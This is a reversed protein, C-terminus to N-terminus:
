TNERRIVRVESASKLEYYIGRWEIRRVFGAALFNFLMVWPVLPALQWYRSAYRALSDAEEPFVERGVTSRIRGKDIGLLLIAALLGGTLMREGAGLSPLILWALGSLLTASYFVYTALGMRWLHPMYVRTIIIQRNAWHLFNRLGSEERCALLCRPEFHIRGRAERVARTMAYDDSVTGAWYREALELRRFDGARIAMSGGWAFNRNHDGLLTAISTDWAARLQSAFAKGPLYWRFGTSVTIGLDGLPAVLSRLWDQAPRADIDAFVLVEARPEVASLGRLLNNVKDGRSESVGAVLLATRVAAKSGSAPVQKLRAQLLPYAPDRESAVVLVVQYDPYDQTLYRSLNFELDADAGKCPIVVAAPPCYDRPPPNRRSRRVYRLFRYGDLLAWGSQALLLIGMALFIKFGVPM